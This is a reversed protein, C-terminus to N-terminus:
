SGGFTQSRSMHAGQGEVLFDASRSFNSIKLEEAIANTRAAQIPNEVHANLGM